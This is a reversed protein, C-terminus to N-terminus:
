LHTSLASFLSSLPSLLSYLTSPLPLSFCLSYGQLRWFWPRVSELFVRPWLNTSRSKFTFKWKDRNPLGWLGRRNVHGVAACWNRFLCTFLIDRLLFFILFCFSFLLLSSLLSPYRICWFSQCCLYFQGPWVDGEDAVLRGERAAGFM